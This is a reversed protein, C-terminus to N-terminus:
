ADWDFSKFVVSDSNEATSPFVETNHAFPVQSSNEYLPDNGYLCMDFYGGAIILSNQKNGTNPLETALYAKSLTIETGYIIQKETGPLGSVSDRYQITESTITAVMNGVPNLFLATDAIKIGMRANAIFLSGAGGKFPILANGQFSGYSNNVNYPSNPSRISTGSDHSIGLSPRRSKYGVVFNSDSTNFNSKLPGYDTIVKGTSYTNNKIISSENPSDFTESSSTSNTGGSFWSSFGLGGSVYRSFSSSYTRRSYRDGSGAFGPHDALGILGGWIRADPMPLLREYEEGVGETNNYSYKHGSVTGTKIYFPYPYNPAEPSSYLDVSNYFVESYRAIKGNLKSDLGDKKWVKFGYTENYEETVVKSKGDYIENAVPYAKSSTIHVKKILNNPRAHYVIVSEGRVFYNRFLNYTQSLTSPDEVVMYANMVLKRTSGGRYVNSFQEKNANGRVTYNPATKNDGQLYRAYAQRYTGVPSASTTYYTPSSYYTKRMSTIKARIGSSLTTRQELPVTGISGDESVDYGLRIADTRTLIIWGDDKGWRTDWDIKTPTGEPVVEGALPMIQGAPLSLVGSADYTVDCYEAVVELFLLDGKQIQNLPPLEVKIDSPLSSASTRINSTKSLWDIESIEFKQRAIKLNFAQGQNPQFPDTVTGRIQIEFLDYLKSEAISPAKTLTVHLYKRGNGKERTELLIDDTTIWEIPTIQEVVWNIDYPIGYPHFASEDTLEVEFEMKKTYTSDTLNEYVDMGGTSQYNYDWLKPNDNSLGVANENKPQPQGPRKYEKIIIPVERYFEDGQWDVATARLTMPVDSFSFPAEFTLSAGTSENIGLDLVNRNTQTWTISETNATEGYVEGIKQVTFTGQQLYIFERVGNVLQGGVSTIPTIEPDISKGSFASVSIPVSPFTGLEGRFSGLSIPTSQTIGDDEFLFEDEIQDFSIPHNNAPNNNALPIAM